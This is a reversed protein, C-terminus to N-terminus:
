PPFKIAAFSNRMGTKQLKRSLRTLAFVIKRCCQPVFRQHLSVLQMEAPYNANSHIPFLHLPVLAPGRDKSTDM